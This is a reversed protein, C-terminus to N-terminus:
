ATQVTLLAPVSAIVLLDHQRRVLGEAVARWHPDLTSPAREVAAAPVAIVDDVEDALLAFLEAGDRVVVVMPAEDTSAPVDLRLHMDIATVIQGRLNLFGAVERPALPIGALRQAPLVEQVTDVPLGFWQTGVRFTVLELEDTSV